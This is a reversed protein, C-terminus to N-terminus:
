PLHRWTKRTVIKWIIKYGVPFDKAISPCNEGAAHRQRISIINLETLKSNANKEGKAKNNQRNSIPGIYLHPQKWINYHAIEYILTHGVNYKKGLEAYSIQPNNMLVLRIALVKQETLKSLGSKEGCAIRGKLVADQINDKQTGSFLHKPNVCIPNDCKHCIYIHKNFLIGYTYYFAARHAGIAFNRNKTRLYFRGYGNNTDPTGQWTWCNNSKTVKQWFQERYHDLLQTSPVTRSENM